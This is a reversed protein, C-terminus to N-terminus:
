SLLGSLVEDDLSFIEAAVAKKGEKCLAKCLAKVSASKSEQGVWRQLAQHAQERCRCAYDTAIQEITAEPLELRRAVDKWTSAIKESLNNLEERTPERKPIGAFSLFLSLFTIALCLRHM